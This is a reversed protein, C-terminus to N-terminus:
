DKWESFPHDVLYANYYRHDDTVEKGIWAPLRVDEDEDALEVEALILGKNEGEFEDIEWVHRHFEVKFRRKEILPKRCLLSLMEEAEEFPIEYEYEPQISGTRRGKITLYGKDGATRVRVTTADAAPFYGQQYFVGKASQRWSDDTVLFKREIEKPM